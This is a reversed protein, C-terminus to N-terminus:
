RITLSPFNEKDEVIEKFDLCEILPNFIALFCEKRSSKGKLYHMTRSKFLDYFM